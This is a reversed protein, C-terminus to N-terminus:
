ALALKARIGWATNFGSVPDELLGIFENFNLGKDALYRDYATHGLGRPMAVLGPMIGDFFHVKVKATGMPTTLNAYGGQSLNLSKATEPNVEVLIDNNKLVTDEVTKITFPPDGIFGNALRMSVYPILVLPFSATDGELVVPSFGYLKDIDASAGGDSLTPVFEFKKSPTEFANEWGPAKCDPDTWFGEEVLGDWKEGITEKLCTEYSDWPFSEAISGGLSKAMLLIVDGLHKTDFQPNLVPRVLGIVPNVLGVPPPVDEYRELYVHNPLILDANKATEDMYSSFSVVFPIKDFAEKVANSNPLSYLPNADAVFLAQIPYEKGSNIVDPLRNLLSRSYPYETGGAGDIRNKQMGNSAAGDMEAEPWRIYETEPLAWVGGQRNINGVLANLSHVAMFENLSGSINRGQGRGCIALPKSAKAFSRALSVITSKDVGTLKAVNDPSYGEVVFKKFGKRTQGQDDTWDEFGSTYNNIFDRNYLSEKIIVHAIGLALVADMGPNIPIWKDAKAATISLRPEIQVVKGKGEKWRSNAQFMHVPSGWGEIIGSGFSLIFDTNKVDFGASTQTGQTLYLTLDYSDQISPMRLFNPSGYVTLFRELLQPVTGRDSGSIVSVTHSEGKSRFEGLKGVVESIAEDWSIKEWKGEGRKGARMLPGKVRRDYGYLLQLGSLGLLCIGGDNVPHSKMGEIKVSRDDVKRVTIGCGGPCLTCTSDVYSVEGGEPVPTWPWNQTWISVDDLLKWPLPSLTVGAAAGFGFSLFSRRDIKM